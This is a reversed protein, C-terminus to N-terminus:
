ALTVTGPFRGKGVQWVKCSGPFSLSSVQRSCDHCTETDGETERSSMSYYGIDVKKLLDAQKIIKLM